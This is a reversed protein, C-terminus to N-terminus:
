DFFGSQAVSFLEPQKGQFLVRRRSPCPTFIVGFPLADGHRFLCKTKVDFLKTLGFCAGKICCFLTRRRSPFLSMGGNCIVLTASVVRPRNVLVRAAKHCDEKHSMFLCTNIQRTCARWRKDAFRMFLVDVGIQTM